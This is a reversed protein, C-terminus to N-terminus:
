FPLGGSGGAGGGGGGSGSGGGTGASPFAITVLGIWVNRDDAYINGGITTALLTKSGGWTPFAGSEQVYLHHDVTTGATGTVSATMPSYAASSSGMILSGAGVSITATAPAGAAATYSIAGNFKYGLNAAMIPPSTTPAPRITWAEFQFNTVKSGNAGLAIMAQHTLGATATAQQMLINDAFVYYATGDYGGSWQTAASFTVGNKATGQSIWTAGFGVYWNGDVGWHARCSLRYNHDATDPAAATGPATAIGITTQQTEIRGSFFATDRFSERSFYSGNWAGTTGPAVRTVTNGQRTYGTTTGQAAFNITTGAFDAAKKGDDNVIGSNNATTAAKEAMANILATRAGYYDAFKSRFTAPVIVTDTTLSTYAPTLGNLYSTLADAAVSYNDAVSGGGSPVGLAVAKAYIIPREATIVTVERVVDGKEGASLYNDAAVINLKSLASAANTDATAAQAILATKGAGTVEDWLATQGAREAMANILATRAAYYDGFKSRFTTPVITTDTTTSTYAPTLGNLYTTLAGYAVSFVDAASGGATSLGLASAKNYIVPQEAVIVQVERIIEPKEGASLVTDSAIVGLKSLASAANADAAAAQSVLADKGAGSVQDWAATQAARAAMANLLRTRAAYYDSFKANFTAPVIATDVATNTFAPTLGSLYISLLDYAYLFSDVPVGSPALTLGLALAQDRIPVREAAIDNWQRIIDPKEGASLWGDSQIIDIENLAAAANAAAADAMAQAANAAIQAAVGTANAEAIGQVIPLLTPDYTTPLAGAVAAADSADWAYIAVNEERLMMPVTGDIQVTLDAIRFLKDAWGMPTFTLRIVDGKQFLWARSSFVAQFTGGYLARQLRMKALRQAQSPSQVLPLNVTSVREIGDPSPIVVEPYDVLQYLSTTSPDTYGGRVINFSDSLPPTQTWTFDGLVDDTTLSGIPAALDNALVTVRIKGDVDDLLANMSAKFSDLVVSLDDAESFIGDARYRPETGGAARAVSEDCLNAGAIFSALDIRAAPIGKGVALKGNIRWGLLYTLMQLAPNRSASDNWAWTAQNNARQTGSGGATSDLRPDYVAAGKGVITTRSPVSSAFPSSAKKDLGTLRFKLYLYACGTYRRSSGMRAGTHIANGANGEAVPTVTLYGAFASTVGSALTWAQKDDLWLEEIAAVKHSAVVIWRHLFVNDSSLEQDRIDTAMATRGFVFTRPARLVISATLRDTTSSSVQPAKPKPALLSAGLSLGAGITLLTGLGLGAVLAGSTVAGIAGALSAGALLGAGVGATAVILAGGVVIMGAIKLAKAM